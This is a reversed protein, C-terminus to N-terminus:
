SVCVCGSVRGLCLTGGVSIVTSVIELFALIDRSVSM